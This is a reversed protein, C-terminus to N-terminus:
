HGVSAGQKWQLFEDLSREEPRVLLTESKSKVLWAFFMSELGRGEVRGSELKKRMAPTVSPHQSFLSIYAAQEEAPLADFADRIRASRLREFEKAPSVVSQVAASPAPLPSAEPEGNSAELECLKVFYGAPNGVGGQRVREVTNDYIRLLDVEEMSVILENLKKEGIGLSRLAETLRPDPGRGTETPLPLQKKLEVKFQLHTVKKRAGQTEILSVQIPCFESTELEALSPNLVYRKFYKYEKQAYSNNPGAILAMWQEVPLRRTLHAPNNIYRSTNEYLALAYKSSLSNALHMDIMAFPMPRMLMGFVDPPYEWHIGGAGNRPRAWQSILRSSVTWAQDGIDEMVDFRFALRYLGDVAEYLRDHGRDEKPMGLVVKLESITAKFRPVMRKDYVEARQEATLSNWKRTALLLLGNFVRRMFHSYNGELPYMHVAAAAKKLHKPMQVMPALEPFFVGQVPAEIDETAM